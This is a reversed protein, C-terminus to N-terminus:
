LGTGASLIDLSLILVHYAPADVDKLLKAPDHPVTKMNCTPRRLEFSIGRCISAM